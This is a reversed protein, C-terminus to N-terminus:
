VKHGSKLLPLNSQDPTRVPPDLCAPAGRSGPDLPAQPAEPDLSTHSSPDGVKAVPYDKTLMSPTDALATRTRPSWPLCHHWGSRTTHVCSSCPDAAPAQTAVPALHLCLHRPLFWGQQQRELLHPGRATRTCERPQLTEGRATCLPPPQHCSNPWCPM